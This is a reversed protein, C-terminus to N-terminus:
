SIRPYKTYGFTRLRQALFDPHVWLREAIYAVDTIDLKFIFHDVLGKPTLFENAFEEIKEDPELHYPGQQAYNLCYAAFLKTLVIRDQYPSDQKTKYIVYKKLDFSYEVKNTGEKVILDPIKDIIPEPFIPVECSWYKRLIEQALHKPKM